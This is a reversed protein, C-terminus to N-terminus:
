GIPMKDAKIIQIGLENILVFPNNAGAYQITKTNPQIICLSMDMGDAINDQSNSLTNIVYERLKNLIENAVLNGPKVIENLFAVGLMSMF